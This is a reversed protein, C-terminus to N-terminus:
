KILSLQNNGIFGLRELENMTKIFSDDKLKYVARWKGNKKVREKEVLGKVYLERLRRDAGVGLYGNDTEVRVIEHTFHWKGDSLIELIIDQNKM